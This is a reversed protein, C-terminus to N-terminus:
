VKTSCVSNQKLDLVYNFWRIERKWGMQLTWLCIRVFPFSIWVRVKFLVTYGLYFTASGFKIGRINTAVHQFLNALIGNAVQHFFISLVTVRNAPRCPQGMRQATLVARTCVHVHEAPPNSEDGDLRPRVAATSGGAASASWELVRNNGTRLRRLVPNEM